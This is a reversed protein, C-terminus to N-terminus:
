LNIPRYGYHLIKFVPEGQITMYIKAKMITFFYQVSCILKDDLSWSIQKFYEMFLMTSAIINMAIPNDIRCRAVFQSSLKM